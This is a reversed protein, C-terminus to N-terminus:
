WACEVMRGSSVRALPDRWLAKKGSPTLSTTEAHSPEDTFLTWFPFRADLTNGLKVGKPADFNFEILDFVFFTHSKGDKGRVSNSGNKNLALRQLVMVNSDGIRMYRSVSKIIEAMGLYRYGKAGSLLFLTGGLEAALGNGHDSLNLIFDDKGDNNLDAFEVGDIFGAPFDNLRLVAQVAKQQEGKLSVVVHTTEEDEGRKHSKSIGTVTIDHGGCHATTSQDTNLVFGSNAPDDISCAALKLSQIQEPAFLPAYDLVDEEARVAGASLCVGLGVLLGSRLWRVYETKMQM